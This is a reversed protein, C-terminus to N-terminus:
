PMQYPWLRRPRNRSTSSRRNIGTGLAGVVTCFRTGILAETFAKPDPAERLAYAISIAM